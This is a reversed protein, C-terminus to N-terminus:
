RIVSVQKSVGSRGLILEQAQDASMPRGFALGQAFECGLHYLEAADAESEAGEAVVDMGLDHALGVMSRLVVPRTGKANTRV